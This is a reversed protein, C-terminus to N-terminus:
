CEVVHPEAEDRTVGTEGAVAHPEADEVEVLPHDGPVESKDLRENLNSTSQKCHEGRERSDRVVFMM